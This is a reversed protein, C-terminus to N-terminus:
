KDVSQLLADAFVAINRNLLHLRDGHGERILCVLALGKDDLVRMYLSQGNNLGIMTSGGKDVGGGYIGGFDGIVELLDEMLTCLSPDAPTTDTAFHIKSSVDFLFAKDLNSSSVLLDMLGEVRGDKLLSRQVVRSFAEHISSDFICTCHVVFDPKVWGSSRMLESFQVSVDRVFSLKLDGPAQQTNGVSFMETDFRYNRDTKHLFLEFHIDPKVRWARTAVRKATQLGSLMGSQAEDSVDLVYVLSQCKAFLATDYDSSAEEWPWAGSVEVVRFNMLRNLFPPEMKVGQTPDLYVTEHPSLKGFLVKILSTKGAKKAGVFIVKSSSDDSSGWGVGLARLSKDM